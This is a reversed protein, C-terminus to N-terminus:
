NIKYIKIKKLDLGLHLQTQKPLRFMKTEIYTDDLLIFFNVYKIIRHIKLICITILIINYTLFVFRKPNLNKSKRNQMKPIDM